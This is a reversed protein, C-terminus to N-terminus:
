DEIPIPKEAESKKGRCDPRGSELYEVWSMGCKGCVDNGFKFDHNGANREIM